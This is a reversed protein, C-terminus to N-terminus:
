RKGPHQADGISVIKHEGRPQHCLGQGFPAATKHKSLSSCSPYSIMAVERCPGPPQASVQRKTTISSRGTIPEIMRVVIISESGIERSRGTTRRLLVVGWWLPVSILTRLHPDSAEGLTRLFSVVEAPLAQTVSLGDVQG